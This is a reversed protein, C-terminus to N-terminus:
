QSKYKTGLDLSTPRQSDKTAGTTATGLYLTGADVRYINAVHRPLTAGYCNTDKAQPTVDRTQKPAWDASGCLKVSNAATAGADTAMAVKLNNFDLNINYGGDNTKEKKNIDITGKEEFTLAADGSCDATNFLRTTRTVRAGSFRYAVQQGKISSQFGTLVGTLLADGPKVSCESVFTKEQLDKDRIAEKINAAPNNKKPCATLMLASACLYLLKKLASRRQDEINM